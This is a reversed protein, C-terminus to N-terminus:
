GIRLQNLLWTGGASIAVSIAAAYALLSNHFMELSYIRDAHDDLCKDTNALREIITDMKTDLRILLDHDGICPVGPIGQIGQIGQIGNRGDHGDYGRDGREDM